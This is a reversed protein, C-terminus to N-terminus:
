RKKVPNDRTVDISGSCWDMKFHSGFFEKLLLSTKSAEVESVEKERVSLNCTSM